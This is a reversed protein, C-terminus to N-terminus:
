NNAFSQKDGGSSAPVFEITIAAVAHPPLDINLHITRDESKFSIPEKRLCSSAQLQTVQLASLYKPEGMESWWRRPNAHNEDIRQLYATVPEAHVGILRVHVLETKIAHRPLAHNTLLMTASNMKRIVWADVTEHSGDVKLTESGM